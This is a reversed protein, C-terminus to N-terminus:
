VGAPMPGRARAPEPRARDASQLNHGVVVGKLGLALEVVRATGEFPLLQVVM